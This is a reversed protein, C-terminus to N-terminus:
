KLTPKRTNLNPLFTSIFLLISSFVYFIATCTLVWKRTPYKPRSYPPPITINWFAM